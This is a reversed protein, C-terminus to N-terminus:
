GRRRRAAGRRAVAMAVIPGAARLLAVIVKYRISPVSVAVGRDVDLLARRVLPRVDLWMWSPAMAERSVGMREHFETRVFGPAIATVTVGNSRYYANAWRSFTLSWAKAASYSGLAGFGATSSVTVIHGSHRPLMQGLAAHALRLPVRALVDFQRLEDAITNEDFEKQLGFGANNVLYDIPDLTAGVRSEVIAFQAEDLLDAVLVDVAVGHSARLEDAYSELRNGDRAVLVLDHGRAALQRAFEAGIGATAGTVLAITM